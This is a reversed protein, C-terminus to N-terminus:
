KIVVLKKTDILKNDVSLSYFYVGSSLGEGNFRINYTGAKLNKNVLTQIERGRLDYVMIKANGSKLMSWKVNTMSNFPNPYNQHLKYDSIITTNNVISNPSTRFKMLILSDQSNIILYFSNNYLKLNLMSPSKPYYNQSILKGKEDREFIRLSDPGM